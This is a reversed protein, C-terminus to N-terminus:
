RGHHGGGVDSFETMPGDFESIASMLVVNSADQLFQLTMLEDIPKPLTCCPRKRDGHRAYLPDLDLTTSVLNLVAGHFAPM